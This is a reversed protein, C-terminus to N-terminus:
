MRWNINLFINLFYVYKAYLPHQTSSIVLDYHGKKLENYVSFFLRIKETNRLNSFRFHSYRWIEYNVKSKYIESPSGNMYASAEIFRINFKESLKIFLDERAHFFGPSFYVIKKSM